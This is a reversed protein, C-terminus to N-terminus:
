QGILGPALANGLASGFPSARRSTLDPRSGASMAATAAPAGRWGLLGRSLSIEMRWGYPRHRHGSWAIILTRRTGFQDSVWGGIIQFLLYPYAFRFFGPRNPRTSIL